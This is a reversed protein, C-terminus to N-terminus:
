EYRLAEIPDLLAAKRAPYFGFVVGVSISVGSALILSLPSIIFDWQYDLYQAVQAILFSFSVGIIIGIVGGVLSIMASEIIFQTQIIGARAGIAKRLGIERTRETVTVLMINMIGIGGVILSIAAIAALFFKLADTIQGLADLAQAQSRVTFDDKGEEKIHHRERLLDKIEAIVLDINKAENVKAHIMGVHRIGLTIKQATTAPMFLKTNRSDLGTKADAFLGIVLFNANGIKITEGVPNVDEGFFKEAVDHGLIVVRSLGLEEQSTFFRGREIDADIVDLYNASVGSIIVIGSESGYSASVNGSVYPTTAVVDPISAAIANADDITLTTVFIGMAAAPPGQEDEDQGGPVVGVLNSGVNEIQNFILSQAGDGVSIILVVSSVGIIIGLMTLLSKGKNALLNSVALKLLPIIM